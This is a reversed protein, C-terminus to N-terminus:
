LKKMINNFYRYTKPHKYGFAKYYKIPIEKSKLSGYIDCFIEEPIKEVRYHLKAMQNWLTSKKLDKVVDKKFKNIKLKRLKLHAKEHYITTLKQVRPLTKDVYITNTIYNAIGVFKQRGIKLRQDNKPVEIIKPM